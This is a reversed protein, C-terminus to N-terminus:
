FAGKLTLFGVQMDVSVGPSFEEPLRLSPRFSGFSPTPILGERVALVFHEYCFGRACPATDAIRTCKSHKCNM